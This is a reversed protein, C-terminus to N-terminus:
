DTQVDEPAQADQNAGVEVQPSNIIQEEETIVESATNVTFPQCVKKGFKSILIIETMKIVMM